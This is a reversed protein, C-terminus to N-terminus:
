KGLYLNKLNIDKKMKKIPIKKSGCIFIFLTKFFYKM